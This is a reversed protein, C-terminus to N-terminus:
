FVELGFLFNGVSVALLSSAQWINGEERVIIDAEENL